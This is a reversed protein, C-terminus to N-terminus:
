SGCIHILMRSSHKTLGCKKIICRIRASRIRFLQFQVSVFLPSSVFAIILSRQLMTKCFQEAHRSFFCLNCRNCKYGILRSCNLMNEHGRWGYFHFCLSLINFYKKFLFGFNFISFSFTELFFDNDTSNRKSFGLQSFEQHVVISKTLPPWVFNCRRGALFISWCTVCLYTQTKKINQCHALMTLHMCISALQELNVLNM